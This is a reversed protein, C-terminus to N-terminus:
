GVETNISSDTSMGAAETGSSSASFEFLHRFDDLSDQGSPNQSADFPDSEVYQDFIDDYTDFYPVEKNSPRM